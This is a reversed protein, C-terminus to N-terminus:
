TASKSRPQAARKPKPTPPAAVTVQPELTKIGWDVLRAVLARVSDIYDGAGQGDVKIAGGTVDVAVKRADRIDAALDDSLALQELIAETGLLPGRMSGLSQANYAVVRLAQKLDAYTSGVMESGLKASTTSTNYKSGRLRDAVIRGYYKMAQIRAEPTSAAPEGSGDNQPEHSAASPVSAGEDDGGDMQGDTTETKLVRTRENGLKVKGKGWEFGEINGLINVLPGRFALVLIGVLLPWAIHGIVNAVIQWGEITM